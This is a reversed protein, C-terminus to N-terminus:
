SLVSSFLHELKKKRIANSPPLPNLTRNILFEGLFALYAIPHSRIVFTNKFLTKLLLVNQINLGIHPNFGRFALIKQCRFKADIVHADPYAGDYASIHLKESVCYKEDFEKVENEARLKV